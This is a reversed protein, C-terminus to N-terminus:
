GTCGRCGYADSPVRGRLYEIDTDEGIHRDTLHRIM